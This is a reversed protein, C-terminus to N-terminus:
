GNKGEKAKIEMLFSVLFVILSTVLTMWLWSEKGEFIQCVLMGPIFMDLIRAGKSLLAVKMSEM